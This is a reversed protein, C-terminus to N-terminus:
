ASSPYSLDPIFQFPWILQRHLWFCCAEEDAEIERGNAGKIKRFPQDQQQLSLINLIPFPESTGALNLSCKKGWFTM